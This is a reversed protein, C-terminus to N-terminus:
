SNRSFLQGSLWTSTLGAFFGPPLVNSRRLAPGRGAGTQILSGKMDIPRVRTGAQTLRFDSGPNAGERAM